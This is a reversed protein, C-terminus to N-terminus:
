SVNIKWYWSQPVDHLNLVIFFSISSLCSNLDCIHETMYKIFCDIHDVTLMLRSLAIHLFTLM